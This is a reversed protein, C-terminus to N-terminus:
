NIFPGMADVSLAAHLKAETDAMTVNYFLPGGPLFDWPRVCRWFSNHREPPVTSKASAGDYKCTWFLLKTPLVTHGLRALGFGEQDHPRLGPPRSESKFISDLAIEPLTHTTELCWASYIDLGLVLATIWQLTDM